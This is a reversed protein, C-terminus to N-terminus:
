DLHTRKADKFLVGLTVITLVILLVWTLATTSSDLVVNKDYGSLRADPPTSEEDDSSSAHVPASAVLVLALAAALMWRKLFFHKTPSMM